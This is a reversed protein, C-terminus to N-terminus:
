FQAPAIGLVGRIERGHQVGPRFRLQRDKRRGCGGAPERYLDDGPIPERTFRISDFYQINDLRRESARLMTGDFREGPYLMLERRVVDDQTVTNGTVKIEGVYKLDGEQVRHIVNTTKADRDLTVQPEVSATVFGSDEYGKQM